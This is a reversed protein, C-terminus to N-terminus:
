RHKRAICEQVFKRRKLPHMVSYQRRAEAKCRSAMRSQDQANELQVDWGKNFREKLLLRQRLVEDKENPTEKPTAQPATQPAAQPTRKPTGQSTGQASAFGVTAVVFLFALVLRMPDRDVLHHHLMM